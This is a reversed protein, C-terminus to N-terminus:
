ILFNDYSNLLINSFEHRQMQNISTHANSLLKFYKLCIKFPNQFSNSIAKLSFLFSFFCLWCGKEKGKPGVRLGAWCYCANKKGEGRRSGSVTPYWGEKWSLHPGCSLARRRGRNTTSKSEPLRGRIGIKGPNNSRTRSKVGKFAKADERCDEKADLVVLSNRNEQEAV